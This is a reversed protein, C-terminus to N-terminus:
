KEYKQIHINEGWIIKEFYENILKYIYDSYMDKKVESSRKELKIDNEFDADYAFEFIFDAMSNEKKKKFLYEASKVRIGIIFRISLPLHELISFKELLDKYRSFKPNLANISVLLLIEYPICVRLLGTYRKKDENPVAIDIRDLIRYLLIFYRSVEERGYIYTESIKTLNAKSNTIKHLLYNAHFNLKGDLDYFNSNLSKEHEKLLNDFETQFANLKQNRYTLFAIWILGLASFVGSLSTLIDWLTKPTKLDFMDKYFYFFLCIGIYVGIMIGIFLPINRELFNMFKLFYKFLKNNM